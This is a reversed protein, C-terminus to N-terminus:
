FELFMGWPVGGIRLLAVRQCSSTFYSLHLVVVCMGLWDWVFEAPSLPNIKQRVYLNQLSNTEGRAYMALLYTNHLGVLNNVNLECDIGWVGDRFKLIPVTARVLHCSGSSGSFSCM